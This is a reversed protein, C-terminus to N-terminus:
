LIITVITGVGISSEMHLQAGVMQELRSRVNKIGVHSRGDNKKYMDEMCFGQGDDIVSVVIRDDMKRTRILIKLNGEDKSSLGHKIANEVLPQITLPPIMFDEVEIDLEVEFRNEFRMRELKLYTQVHSLEKLFPIMKRGTISDMNGRLYTAFDYLLERAKLPEQLCLEGIASISNYLFHPQIQSIMIAIRNEAIEKEQHRLMTEQRSYEELAGVGVYIVYILLSVLLGFLGFSTGRLYFAIIDVVTGVVCIIPLGLIFAVREKLSYEKIQCIMSWVITLIAVGIAIHTIILGDRLEMLGTVHLVVQIVSVCVLGIRLIDFRKRCKENFKDEIASLLPFAGFMLMTLSVYYMFETKEAFFFNLLSSDTLRWMGAMIAFMGLSVMKKRADKKAYHYIGVCSFVVGILIAAIGLTLEPAEKRMNDMVFGYLSGIQFEPEEGVFSKYVPAIQVRVDKDADERHLPLTVWYAGLTKGSKIDDPKKVSYVLEDDIYVKVYQHIAYFGLYKDTSLNESVDLQYEEIMGLPASSDEFVSSKKIGIDTVYENVRTREENVNSHFTWGGLFLIMCIVAIYLSIKSAKTLNNNKEVKNKM